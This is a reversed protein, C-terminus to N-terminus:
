VVSCSLLMWIWLLSKVTGRLNFITVFDCKVIAALEGDHWPKWRFQPLFTSLWLFSGPFLTQLRPIIPPWINILEWTHRKRYQQHPHTCAGGQKHMHQGSTRGHMTASPGRECTKITKQDAPWTSLRWGTAKTHSLASSLVLSPILLLQNIVWCVTLALQHVDLFNVFADNIIM